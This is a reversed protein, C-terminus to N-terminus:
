EIRFRRSKTPDLRDAEANAWACWSDLGTDEIPGQFALISARVTEVYARIENAQKFANADNFLREVREKEIRARGEREQREPEAERRRTDEELQAKRQVKWNYNSRVSERYKIEGAVIIEVTIARLQREIRGNEVDSWSNRAQESGCSVLIDFGASRSRDRWRIEEQHATARRARTQAFGVARRHPHWSRARREWAVLACFSHCGDCLVVCEFHAIAAAGM